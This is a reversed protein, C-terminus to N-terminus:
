AGTLNVHGQVFVAGLLLEVGDGDGTDLLQVGEGPSLEFLIKVHIRVCFGDDPRLFFWQICTSPAKCLRSNLSEQVVRLVMVPFVDHISSTIGTRTHSRSKFSGM